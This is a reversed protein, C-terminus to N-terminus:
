AAQLGPDVLDCSVEELEAPRLGLVVGGAQGVHDVVEESLQGPTEVAKLVVPCLEGGQDVGGGDGLYGPPFTGAQRICKPVEGVVDVRLLLEAVQHLFNRLAVPPLSPM